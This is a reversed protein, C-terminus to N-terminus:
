GYGWRVSHHRKLRKSVDRTEESDWATAEQGSQEIVYVVKPAENKKRSDNHLLPSLTAPPEDVALDQGRIVPHNPGRSDDKVQSLRKSIPHEQALHQVIQWRSRYVQLLDVEPRLHWLYTSIMLTWPKVNPNILLCVRKRRTTVTYHTKNKETSCQDKLFVM